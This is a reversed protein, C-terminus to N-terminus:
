KIKDILRLGEEFENMDKEVEIYQEWKDYFDGNLYRRLACDAM